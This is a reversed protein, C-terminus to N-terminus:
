LEKLCSDMYGILTPVAKALARYYKECKNYMRISEEIENELKEFMDQEFETDAEATLKGLLEREEAELLAADVKEIYGNIKKLEKVNFEGRSLMISGRHSELAGQNFIRELRQLNDKAQTLKDIIISKEEGVFMRPVDSILQKVDYENICHEKIAAELTSISTYNILAGGETADIIEVNKHIYAVREIWRLYSLYDLRTVLTEGHVGEIYSYNGTSFDFETEAEGVHVKGDTLALDQGILILKKFGWDIATAIAATAVSGGIDVNEIHKGYDGILKSWFKIDTSCFIVDKPKVKSLVKHSSDPTIAFPIEELGEAQFYRLDKDFDATIIIDPIVGANIVNSIATDVAIILAKNKAGKLLHINKALSPGASVIIAPMDQPFSGMFDSNCRSNPLYKFNLIDNKCVVDAVALLTNNLLKARDYVGQIRDAYGQYANKFLEVYKPMAIHRSTNINMPRIAKGLVVDFYEENIGDVVLIVRGSDLVDTIDINKIVEMFISVSPEYVVIIVQNNVIKLAQRVFGGNSLGFMTLIAKEPMDSLEELYKEAEKKPNYKSCMFVDSGEQKYIVISENNKAHSIVATDLNYNFEGDAIVQYITNHKRKLCELNKQYIM